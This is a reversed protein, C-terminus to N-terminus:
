PSGRYTDVMANGHLCPNGAHEKARSHQGSDQFAQLWADCRKRSAWRTRTVLGLGCSWPASAVTARANLERFIGLAEQAPALAEFAKPGARESGRMDAPHTSAGAKLQGVLRKAELLRM